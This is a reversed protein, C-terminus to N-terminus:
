KADGDSRKMISFKVWAYEASVPKKYYFPGLWDNVAKSGSWLSLYIRGPNTPLVDGKKTQHIPKGDVFWVIITKSWLFGYTHFTESADFGLDVTTAGASKGNVFYNVQVQHPNKGLLEFDIEDHQAGGTAPGVYTFFATNLGSGAAPKISAEYLGYGSLANTHIEGCGHPRVKGGKDSLTLKLNEKDASVATKRWECSQIDSNAWGNSVYWQNGDIKGPKSFFPIPAANATQLGLSIFASLLLAIKLIRM